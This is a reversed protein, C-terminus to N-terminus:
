TELPAKTRLPPPIVELLVFKLATSVSGVGPAASDSPALAASTISVVAGVVVIELAANEFSM